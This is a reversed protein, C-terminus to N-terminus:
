SLFACSTYTRHLQQCRNTLFSSNCAARQKASIFFIKIKTVFLYYALIYEQFFKHSLKFSYFYFNTQLSYLLKYRDVIFVNVFLLNYKFFLLSYINSNNIQSLTHPAKCTSFSVVDIKLNLHLVHVM